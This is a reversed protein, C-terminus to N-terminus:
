AGCLCVRKLGLIEAAGAITTGFFVVPKGIDIYQVISGNSLTSGTCLVLEAWDLVVEKYDEVGNEVLKGYKVKGINDPNLDLVRLEFRPALRELLAPQFGVLAIKLKGYNNEIYDAFKGACIEPEDNKCHITGEALGLHRMVANLSAVFLSRAHVDGVIDLQLVEELTGSFEAPSDTFVQGLAGMYEAQLMTEKGTIIPFDRRETIGIAEEPTLSKSRIDIRDAALDRERILKVFGEKLKSYLKDATMESTTM